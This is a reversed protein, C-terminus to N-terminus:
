HAIKKIAVILGKKGETELSKFPLKNVPVVSASIM